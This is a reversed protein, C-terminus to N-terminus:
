RPRASAGAAGASTRHSRYPLRNAGSAGTPRAPESRRCWPEFSGRVLVYQRPGVSATNSFDALKSGVGSGRPVGIIYNGELEVALVHRKVTERQRRRRFAM